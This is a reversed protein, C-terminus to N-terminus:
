TNDAQSLFIKTDERALRWKPPSYLHKYAEPHARAWSIMEIPDNLPAKENKLTKPSVNWWPSELLFKIINKQEDKRFTDFRSKLRHAPSGGWIEYAGIDKNVTSRYSLVAGDGIKSSKLFTVDDGIWVDHGVSINLGQYDPHHWTTDGRIDKWGDYFDFHRTGSYTMPHMTVWEVPHHFLGSRLEAGISCFRGIKTNRIIGGTGQYTYSGIECQGQIVAGISVPEEYVLVGRIQNLSKIRLGYKRLQDTNEIEIM